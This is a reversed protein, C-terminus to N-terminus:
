GFEIEETTRLALGAGALKHHWEEILKAAQKSYNSHGDSALV